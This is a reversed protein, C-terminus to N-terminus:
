GLYVAKDKNNKVLSVDNNLEEFYKRNEGLENASAGTYWLAHYGNGEEDDTVFVIYSGKGEQKLKLMNNYLDNVTLAKM